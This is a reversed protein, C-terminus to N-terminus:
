EEDDGFDWIRKCGESCFIYEKNWHVITYRYTDGSGNVPLVPSNCTYCMERKNTM